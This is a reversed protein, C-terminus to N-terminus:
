SECNIVPIITGADSHFYGFFSSSPCIKGNQTTFVWKLCTLDDIVGDYRFSSCKQTMKQGCLIAFNSLVMYMNLILEDIKNSYAMFSQGEQCHSQMAHARTVENYGDQNETM